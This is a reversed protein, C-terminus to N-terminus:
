KKKLVFNQFFMKSCTNFFYNLFIKSLFFILFHQYSHEAVLLPSDGPPPADPRHGTKKKKPFIFIKFITKSLNFINKKRVKKFIELFFYWLLLKSFFSFFNFIISGDVVGWLSLSQWALRPPHVHRIPPVQQKKKKSNLFNFKLKQCVFTSFLDVLVSNQEITKINLINQFIKFYM